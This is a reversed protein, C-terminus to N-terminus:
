SGTSLLNPDGIGAVDELAVVLRDLLEAIDRPGTVDRSFNLDVRLKEGAVSLNFDLLYPWDGSEDMAPGHWGPPTAFLRTAGPVDTLGFDGMFNFSVQPPVLAALRERVEATPGSYRLAPYGLGGGPARSLQQHLALIREPGAPLDPVDFSMPYLVQFWGVTRSVDLDPFLEARGHTAMALASSTAGTWGAVLDAVQTATLEALSIGLRRAMARLAATAGTSLTRTAIDISDIAIPRGLPQVPLDSGPPRGQGLWFDLEEMVEGSRAYADLRRAWATYSTTRHHLFPTEGAVIQRILSELDELLIGRSMGDVVLHHNIILLRDPLEGGFTFHAVRMVPGSALDLSRQERTALDVVREERADAPVDALDYSAFPVETGPPAVLFTSDTASVDFRSRTADHYTALATVARRLHTATIPERLELYYPNNFHSPQGLTPAIETLFWRQAPTAPAPGVDDDREPEPTREQAAEIISAVTPHTLMMRPTLPLGLRVGRAVAQIALMSDGGLDFFNDHVSVGDVRLLTAWVESLKRELDNRPPEYGAAATAGSRETTAPPAVAADIPHLLRDAAAAPWAAELPGGDLWWAAAGSLSPSVVVPLQPVADRVARRTAEDAILLVSSRTDVRGSSVRDALEAVLDRAPWVQWHGDLLVPTVEPDAEGHALVCVSRGSDGARRLARRLGPHLPVALVASDLIVTRPAPADAGHLAAALVIGLAAFGEPTYPIRALRDTDADHLKDIDFEALQAGADLFTARAMGRLLRALRDNLGTFLGHWPHSRFRESAPCVAVLLHGMSRDRCQRLAAVLDHLTQELLPVVTVLSRTDDALSQPLWDEWRLLVVTASGPAVDIPGADDLLTQVVQAYPAFRLEVPHGLEAAGSALSQRVPDATFTATVAVPVATRAETPAVQAVASQQLAELAIEGVTTSPEAAVQTLLEELSTLLRRANAATFLDVPYQLSVALGRDQPAATLFLDFDVGSTLVDIPELPIGGLQVTTGESEVYNFVCQFIPHRAADRRPRLAEVIAAFPMEQHSQADAVRGQVSSVLERFPTAGAVTLRIPLLDSFFGILGEVEPRNRGAIPSGLVMDDQGSARHLLAAFGALLVSYFTAGSSRALQRLQETVSEALKIDIRDSRDSRVATRPRDTPVDISEPAGSLRDRWYTLHREAESGALWSHQWAAFDVYQIPLPASEPQRGAVADLYRDSLEGLFIGWSWNDSVIHHMGVLLHHEQPGSSVVGVRLMPGRALDYVDTALRRVHEDIAAARVGEPVQSLDVHPLWCDIEDHVVVVPEGDRAPFSSRLGEHRRVIWDVAARLAVTDLPGRVRAAFATNHRAPEDGIQRAAWLRRQPSSLPLEGTRPVRPIAEFEEDVGGTEIMLALHEVTPRVFFSSLPINVGKEARIRALLRLALLSHGGHAFFDGSVDAPAAQLLDRWVVLLEQELPTRPATATYVAPAADMAAYAARVAIVRADRLERAIYTMRNADLAPHRLVPRLVPADLSWLHGLFEETGGDPPLEISALDPFGDRLQDGAEAGHLVVIASPDIGASVLDDVTSVLGPHRGVPGATTVVTRRGLRAQEELMRRVPASVASESPEANDPVEVVVAAVADAPRAALRRVLETGIASAFELGYAGADRTDWVSPVPYRETWRRTSVVSVGPLDACAAVLRDDLEDAPEGDWWYDPSPCIGVLVAARTRARVAGLGALVSDVAVARARRRASVDGTADGPCLDAWRLLYVVGDVDGAVTALTEAPGGTTTGVQIAVPARLLDLWFRVPETIAEFPFTSQVWIRDRHLSEAQSLTRTPQQVCERLVACLQAYLHDVTGPLYLDADYQITGLVEDGQHTLSVFLDFDTVGTDAPEPAFMVEGPEPVAGATVSFMIQFLPNHSPSRPPSVAEVVRAYPASQHGYAAAVVEHTRRVLQRLTPDGALDVRLVLTNAFCGILPEIEAYPRGAVPTGLLLDEQGTARHLVAAFAAAMVANVTTREDRAFDTLARSLDVPLAVRRQAGRRRQVPPRQWDPSLTSLVPAGGLQRRWYAVTEDLGPGDLQEREFTAWDAFQVPLMPMAPQDPNGVSRYLETLEDIFLDVSAGDFVVHHVVMLLVSDDGLTLLRCSYLPGNELSFRQRAHERALRAVEVDCEAKPLHGLDTVPIRVPHPPTVVQRPTGDIVPLVTRMSHHRQVIKTCATELREVDLRGTIRLAFPINFAPNGPEIQDLFWLREQTFSLPAPEHAAQRPQPVARGQVAGSRQRLRDLLQRRQAPSLNDLKSRLDETM